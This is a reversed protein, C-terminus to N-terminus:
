LLLYQRQPLRCPTITQHYLATEIVDEVFMSTIMYLITKHHLKDIIKVSATLDAAHLRRNRWRLRAPDFSLTSM